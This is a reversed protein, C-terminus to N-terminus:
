QGLVKLGDGSIKSRLEKMIQLAETMEKKTEEDKTKRLTKKMVRESFLLTARTLVQLQRFFFASMSYAVVVSMYERIDNKVKDMDYGEGYEFGQPILFCSIIDVLAKNFEIKSYAQFDIYQGTTMKRVDRTIEYKTENLVINKPCNPHIAPFDAVFQAAKRLAQFEPLPLALIDKEEVGCLLGVIGIEVDEAEPVECIELLEQYAAISMEDWNTIKMKM